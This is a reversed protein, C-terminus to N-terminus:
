ILDKKIKNFEERTIVGKELLENARSLAEMADKKNKYKKSSFIEEM